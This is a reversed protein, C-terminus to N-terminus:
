VNPLVVVGSVGDYMAPSTHIKGMRARALWVWKSLMYMFINEKAVTSTREPM